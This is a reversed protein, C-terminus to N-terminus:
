YRGDCVRGEVQGEAGGAERSDRGRGGEGQAVIRSGSTHLAFAHQCGGGQWSAQIPFLEVWM